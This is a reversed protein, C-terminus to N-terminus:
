QDLSQRHWYVRERVGLDFPAGRCDTGSCVALYEEDEITVLIPVPSPPLGGGPITRNRDSKTVGAQGDQEMTATADEFDVAYGRAVGLNATCPLDANPPQNTNFYTTGGLTTASGIVKEGNHELTVYWGDSDLLAEKAAIVEDETGDQIKNATADYMDAVTIAARSSDSRDKFMYFRNSITEDFPNERDGAGVLVADYPAEDNTRRSAVVDVAHQFEQRDGNPGTVSALKYANWNGAPSDATGADLDVRWVQGGTDPIYARDVFGDGNRDIVTPGAPMPFTMDAETETIGGGSGDPSPGAQWIPAGTRGNVAFLGRGESASGSGGPDEATPDYGAGFFLVPDDYEPIRGISPESWTQGLEGFGATSNDIRWLFKPDTPYTVDLAYLFNGGRRMTAYLFVRDGNEINSADPEVIGDGDRDLVYSALSGDVFYAKGDGAPNLPERLQKLTGFFEPPVFGWLETGGTSPDKGGRVAHLMGDNGGYFVVVDEDGGTGYNVISPISHLVDGHVSARVDDTRTDNDEDVADGNGDVANDEGRVWRILNDADTESAVALKAATIDSNGTAFAPMATPTGDNASDCTGTCTYITRESSFADADELDRVRQAVGGKEVVEGDPSDSGSEPDGRPDFDWFTSSHTWFSTAGPRIFGTTSSQAPEGNADALFVEGTSSDAGLQYLKLNGMWRPRDEADPRFVGIYVQNLNTGRVNVSVPLSTSAFVTNVAVIETLLDKVAAEIDEENHAAYYTGGGQQAISKLYARAAHFPRNQTQNPDYVDIVYTTLEQEGAQDPVMDINNLYRAYEDAWNSQYNRPDLSIPDSPLVGGLNRLEDEAHRDEGSDPDGSAIYVAFNRCVDDLDDAKNSPSVYLGGSIAAPDHDGDQDGAAPARGGYYLYAENLALAYPANNAQPVGKDAADYPFRELLAQRYTSDVMRVHEVIKGGRPNNSNAFVEFGIHMKGDLQGDAFVNHMANHIMKWKKIDNGSSVTINENWNASNDLMFLVNPPQGATESNYRFLDIDEARVTTSHVTAITLVVVSLFTNARKLNNM